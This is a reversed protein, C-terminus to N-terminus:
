PLTILYMEVVTRSIEQSLAAIPWCSRTCIMSTMPRLAPQIAAPAARALRRSQGFSGGCMMQRGSTAKEESFNM